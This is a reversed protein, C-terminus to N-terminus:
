RAVVLHVTTGDPVVTGARPRQDVVTGPSPGGEIRRQTEDFRLGLMAMLTPAQGALSGVMAPVTIGTYVLRVKRTRHNDCRVVIVPARGDYRIEAQVNLVDACAEDYAALILPRYLGIDDGSPRPGRVVGAPLANEPDFEARLSLHPAAVAPQTAPAPAVPATSTATCGMAVLLTPAVFMRTIPWIRTM